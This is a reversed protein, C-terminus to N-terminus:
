KKTFLIRVSNMVALLAVGVDAFVAVWLPAYGFAGLAMIAVKIGIAGIINELVIRRTQRGIKIATAVRTPMDTRIVVDANEVAIDSGLGGMAIGVDSISLVPADNLGDGIFAVTKGENRMMEEVYRVKDQPLLEAHARAIGAASAIKTTINVKDGSLLVADEIGLKCLEKVAEISDPKLTDSLGVYGAFIGDIACVILSCDKRELEIPYDINNQQLLRLNGAIVRKNNITAIIGLGSKEKLSEATGIEIKRKNVYDVLSQALPHNSKAEATALYYLLSDSDISEAFVETVSFKGSTITGTKDFAVANVKAIADLYNGGKFLIGRRSAAGIGAYYGLPISIVLACPCSIVLFVLARYLWESFDYTFDVYFVSILYPISLLLAALIIVCPTYIRAFKRIFLETPAKRAQADKVMDLIQSLTSDKYKRSIKIRLNKDIAIMGSLVEDGHNLERPISEGTLAATDVSVTESSELVGDLAVREGAFVEIIEGPQIDEPSKDVSIGNELCHVSKPRMDVLKTIDKTAKAVAKDQLKEGVSYFLIVALAEPYEGICFAGICAIAMLTFESFIEGACIEEIAEKIILLGVPLSAILYWIFETLQHTSVFEPAVYGAIVGAILMLFSIAPSIWYGIGCGSDNHEHHHTHSHAM